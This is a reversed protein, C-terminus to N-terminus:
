DIRTDPDREEVAIHRTGKPTELVQQSVACPGGERKIPEGHDAAWVAADGADAGHEGSVSGGVPDAGAARESHRSDSMLRSHSDTGLPM